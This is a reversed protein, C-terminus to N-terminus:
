FSFVSSCTRQGRWAEFRKSLFGYASMVGSKTVVMLKGMEGVSIRPFGSIIFRPITVRVIKYKEGTLSFTLFDALPPPPLGFGSSLGFAAFSSSDTSFGPIMPPYFSTINKINKAENGKPTSTMYAGLKYNVGIVSAAAMSHHFKEPTITFEFVFAKQEINYGISFGIETLGGFGKERAGSLGIIGFAATLGFENKDVVLPAQYFLRHNMSTLFNQIFIHRREKLTNEQPTIEKRFVKRYSYSLTDKTLIGASIGWQSYHLIRAMGRLFAIRIRRFRIQQEQNMSEYPELSNFEPPLAWGKAIYEQKFREPMAFGLSKNIEEATPNIDITYVEGKGVRIEYVYPKEVVQETDLLREEFEFDTTDTGNSPVWGKPLDVKRQPNNEHRPLPEGVFEGDTVATGNDVAWAKSVLATSLVFITLLAVVYQKM